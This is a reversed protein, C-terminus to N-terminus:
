VFGCVRVRVCVERAGENSSPIYSRIGAWAATVDDALTQRGVNERYLPVRGCLLPDVLSIPPSCPRFVFHTFYQFAKTDLLVAPYPQNFIGRVHAGGRYDVPLNVMYMAAYDLPTGTCLVFGEQEFFQKAQRMSSASSAGNAGELEGYHM